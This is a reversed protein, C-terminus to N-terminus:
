LIVLKWSFFGVVAILFPLTHLPKIRDTCACKQKNENVKKKGGVM